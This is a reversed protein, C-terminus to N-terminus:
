RTLESARSTQNCDVAVVVFFISSPMALIRVRGADARIAM